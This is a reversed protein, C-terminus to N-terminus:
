HFMGCLDKVSRRQWHCEQIKEAPEFADSSEDDEELDDEDEDDNVIDGDVEEEIPEEKTRRPPM